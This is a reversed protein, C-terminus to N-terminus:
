LKREKGKKYNLIPYKKIHRYRNIHHREVRKKKPYPIKPQTSIADVQCFLVFFLIALIIYIFIKKM